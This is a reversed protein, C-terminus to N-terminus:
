AQGAENRLARVQRDYQENAWRVYIWTTLWAAVIVMLGLLLGLTLGPALPMALLPKNFAVLLIFGFYVSVVVASLALAIRWRQRSLSALSM